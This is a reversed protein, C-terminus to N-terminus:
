AFENEQARVLDLLATHNEPGAAILAGHTPEAQYYTLRCGGMTTMIGGAEHVLLDAAALDWDNSRAGAFAADISGQAVRVLRLALSYIKPVAIIDPSLEALRQLYRQPGAIRTNALGKHPSSCSGLSPAATKL